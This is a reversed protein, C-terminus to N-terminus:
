RFGLGGPFESLWGFLGAGIKAKLPLNRWINALSKM